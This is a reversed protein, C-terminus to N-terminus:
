TSGWGRGWGPSYTCEPEGACGPWRACGPGCCSGRWCVGGPGHSRGRWHACGRRRACEPGRIFGSRDGGPGCGPAGGASREDAALRAAGPAFSAAAVVTRPGTPRADGTAIWRDAVPTRGSRSQDGDGPDERGGGPAGPARDGGGRRLRRLELGCLAQGHARRAPWSSHGAALGPLRHLAARAVDVRAADRCFARARNGDDPHAPHPRVRHYGHGPVPRPPSGPLPGRRGRRDRARGNDRDPHPDGPLGCRRVLRRPASGPRRDQPEPDHRHPRGRAPRCGGVRHARYTRLGGRLVASLAHGGHRHYPRDHNNRRHNARGGPGAGWLWHSAGV